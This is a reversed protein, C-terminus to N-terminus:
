LFQLLVFPLSQLLLNPNQLLQTERSYACLYQLVGIQMLFLTVDFTETGAIRIVSRINDTKTHENELQDEPFFGVSTVIKVVYQAM